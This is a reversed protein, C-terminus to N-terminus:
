HHLGMMYGLSYAFLFYGLYSIKQKWFDNDFIVNVNNQTNKKKRIRKTKGVNFISDFDIATTKNEVKNESTKNIKIPEDQIIDKGKPYTFGKPESVTKSKSIPTQAILCKKDCDCYIEGDQLPRDQTYEKCIMSVQM